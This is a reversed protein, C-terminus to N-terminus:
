LGDQKQKQIEREDFQVGLEQNYFFAIQEIANQIDKVIDKGDLTLKIENRGENISMREVIVDKLNKM